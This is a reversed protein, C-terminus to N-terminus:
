SRVEVAVLELPTGDPWVVGEREGRAHAEGVPCRRCTPAELGSQPTLGRLTKRHRAACVDPTIACSLPRCRFRHVVLPALRPSPDTDTRLTAPADALLLAPPPANHAPEASADHPRGVAPTIEPAPEDVLRYRVRRGRTDHSALALLGFAHLKEIAHNAASPHLGAGYEAERLATATIPRGSAAIARCSALARELAPSLEATGCGGCVNCVVRTV